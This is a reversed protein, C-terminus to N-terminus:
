RGGWGVFEQDPLSYVEERGTKGGYGLLKRPQPGKPRDAPVVAAVGYGLSDALNIFHGDDRMREEVLKEGRARAYSWAGDFGTIIEECQPDIWVGPFGDDYLRLLRRLIRHRGEVNINIVALNIGGAMFIDRAVADEPKIANSQRQLAEPGSIDIFHTGVPFWPPPCHSGSPRAAFADVWTAARPTLQSYELQGSFHKVADRFDHTGLDQPMFERYIWLRDSRTSYQFWTCAPRRRGFDYSRYVSGKILKTVPHIFQERGIEGFEPFFPDGSPTSWDLEMERRWDRNTAYLKRAENAWPETHDPDARWHVQIARIGRPTTYASLGERYFTLDTAKVIM